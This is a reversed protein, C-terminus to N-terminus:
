HHDVFILKDTDFNLAAAKAILIDRLEQDMQPSRALLWLYSTNPGCVLSYQYNQHDLDFIVYSGYFPGFFSVKLYGQDPRGVFYAKGQAEKWAKKKESYGRNVVRVGGDDQLSYEASVQTLGREFSHDLRAIEYWTGLYKNVNFGDVPQVNAPIKVCGTLLGLVVLLIKKM